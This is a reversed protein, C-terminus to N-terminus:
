PSTVSSFKQRLLRINFFKAVGQPLSLNANFTRENLKVVLAAFYWLFSKSFNGVLTVGTASIYTHAVRTDRFSFHLSQYQPCAIPQNLFLVSVDSLASYGPNEEFKVM